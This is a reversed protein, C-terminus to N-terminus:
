SYALWADRAGQKRNLMETWGLKYGIIIYM